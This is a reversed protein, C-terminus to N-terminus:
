PNTKKAEAAVKTTKGTKRENRTKYGLARYFPSNEGHLESGRIANVVRLYDENALLDANERAAIASRSDQKLKSLQERATLAPATATRFQALTMGSFIADPANNLWAQLLTELNNKIPKAM